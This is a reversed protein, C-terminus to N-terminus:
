DSGPTSSRTPAAALSPLKQLTQRLMLKGNAFDTDGVRQKGRQSMEAAVESWQM